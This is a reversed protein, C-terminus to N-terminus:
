LSKLVAEKEEPTGDLAALVRAHKEKTLRYRTCFFIGASMLVLPALAMIYLIARQASEPQSTVLAAGASIDQEIFGALGIVAMVAALVLAPGLQIVVNAVGAFLGADRKGNKLHAVDIIDPLIAHPILGPGSIGLGLVMALVYLVMPSANPPVAFLCLAGAIWIAAGTIYAPIKGFRKIMALYAPLAVIQMAFMIAAGLLGVVTSEGRATADRCFYFDVYFFFMASMVAMTIQVCLYLCLYQRFAKVRFPKVFEKWTLREAELPAPIGEKAFLGTLGVCVMFFVGFSLSMVIYGANGEFSDVILGPLAVCLISAFISFGLRLSMMRARETYNDTVESSLAFYPIMVSSQIIVYFIYSLLVSWFRVAVNPNSYPYFLCFLALVLLPASFLLMGRRSGFRVRIVDSYYGILPDIVADVIRATMMVVGALHPPLGVALALFGPYLFNVINFSGGGFVDGVAFALMKGYSLKGGL